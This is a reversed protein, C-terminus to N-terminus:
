KFKKRWGQKEFARLVTFLCFNGAFGSLYQDYLTGLIV